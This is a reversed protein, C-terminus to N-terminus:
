RSIYANHFLDDKGEYNLCTSSFVCWPDLVLYTGITNGKTFTLALMNTKTMKDFYM